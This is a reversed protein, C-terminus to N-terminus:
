DTLEGDKVGPIKLLGIIRDEKPKIGVLLKLLMDKNFDQLEKLLKIFVM